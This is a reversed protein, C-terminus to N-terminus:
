KDADFLELEISWLMMTVLEHVTSVPGVAGHLPASAFKFLEINLLSLGELYVM